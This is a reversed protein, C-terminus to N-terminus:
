SRDVPGSPQEARARAETLRRRLSPLLSAALLVPVASILSTVRTGVASALLGAAVLLHDALSLAAVAVASVAIGASAAAFIGTPAILPRTIAAGVLSGVASLAVVVGFGAEGSDLEDLAYVVGIGWFTGAALAWLGVM